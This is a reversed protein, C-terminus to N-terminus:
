YDGWTLDSTKFKNIINFNCLIIILLNLILGYLFSSSIDGTLIKDTNLYTLPYFYHFKSSLPIMEITIYNFLLIGIIIGFADSISDLYNQVLLVISILSFLSILYLAIQKVIIEKFTYIEMYSTNYLNKFTFIEINSVTSMPYNVNGVGKVFFIIILFLLIFVILFGISLIFSSIIKSLIIKQRSYSQTYYIKYAANEKEIILIDMILLSAFIAIILSNHESLIYGLYNKFNINYPNIEIELDNDMIYTITDIEGLIYSYSNTDLYTDDIYSKNYGDVLNEYKEKLSILIREKDAEEKKEYEKSLVLSINSDKKYFNEIDIDIDRDEERIDNLIAKAYDSQFKLQEGNNKYLNDSKYNMTLLCIILYLIFFIVLIRNKTSKRFKYFETSILKSM